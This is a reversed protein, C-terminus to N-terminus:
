KGNRKEKIQEMSDQLYNRYAETDSWAIGSIYGKNYVGFFIFAPKIASILIVGTLALIIGKSLLEATNDKLTLIIDFLGISAMAIGFYKGIEIILLSLENRFYYSAEMSRNVTGDPLRGISTYTLTMNITSPIIKGLSAISAAIICLKIANIQQASDQNALAMLMPIFSVVFLGIGVYVLCSGIITGLLEGRMATSTGSDWMGNTGFFQIITKTALMAIGMALMSAGKFKAHADDQQLSLLLKFIAIACIAAGAIILIEFLISNTDSIANVLVNENNTAASSLSADISTMDKVMDSVATLHDSSIYKEVYNNDYIPSPASLSSYVQGDIYFAMKKM